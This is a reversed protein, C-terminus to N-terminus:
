RPGHGFGGRKPHSGEKNQMREQMAAIRQDAQEQTIVGKEVLASMREQMRQQHNEKMQAHFQDKDIGHEEMIEPLTKGEAWAAKVEDVSIGLMEAHHEFMQQHHDAQEQPSKQQTGEFHASAVGAGLVTVAALAGLSLLYQKKM